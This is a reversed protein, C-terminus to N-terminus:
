FLSKGICSGECHNIFITFTSENLNSCHKSGNATNHTEPNESVRSKLYKDLCIKWLWYRQFYMLYSPWMKPLYKFNLISKFFWFFFQSFAKQKQSLQVQIPQSLKDRNLLYHKDDVRMRNFFVRLIKHIVLLSKKLAVVKVTILLYQLPAAM